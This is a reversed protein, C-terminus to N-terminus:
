GERLYVHARVCVCVSVNMVRACVVIPGRPVVVAIVHHSPSPKFHVIPAM